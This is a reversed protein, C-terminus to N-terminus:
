RWWEIDTAPYALEPPWEDDRIYEPQIIQHYAGADQTDIIDGRAFWENAIQRLESSRKSLDIQEDATKVNVAQAAAVAALQMYAFGAGQALNNASMDLFNQLQQDSFNTYDGEGSAPPVLDVYDVDGIIARLQGLPTGYDPPAIGLNVM